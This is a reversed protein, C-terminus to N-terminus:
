MNGLILGPAVSLFPLIGIDKSFFALLEPKLVNLALASSLFGVKAPKSIAIRPTALIGQGKTM